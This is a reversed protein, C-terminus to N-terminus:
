QLLINQVTNILVTNKKNEYTARGDQIPKQATKANCVM